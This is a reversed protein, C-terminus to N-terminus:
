LLNERLSKFIANYVSIDTTTPLHIEINYHFSPSSARVRTPVEVQEPTATPGDVVCQDAEEQVPVTQTFDALEAMAKFTRAIDAVVSEGKDVKTAVVGKLADISLEDANTDAMFLDSYSERLANALIYPGEKPNRFARYSPTPTGNSDLFGIAKL